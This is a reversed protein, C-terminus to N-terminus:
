FLNKVENENNGKTEKHFENNTTILIKMRSIITKRLMIIKIKM